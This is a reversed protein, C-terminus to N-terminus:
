GHDAQSVGASDFTAMQALTGCAADLLPFALAAGSGEGLRLGLDLLPELGLAALAVSHGPEASRHGAILYSRVAPALRAAVLAAAATIFGDVVVAVRGAAAALAVGVLGAIELGGVKALVDLPDSPDPRNVELARQVVARKHELQADDVGTGRGTVRTAPAGTLVAVICSSPTTNGIGMEGLAVADLGADREADLLRIGTEIARVAEDRTMAPGVALNRTGRAVKAAVYRVGPPLPGAPPEIDAAVGIDAVVIRAGAVVALANCAAGGRLFNLVMQPTVEAPYRSVGEATVGHDGALVVLAKRTLSPLPRGTIGALQVSLGELRGLSGAPKTLLAQRAEAAAMAASDLPQIAGITRELLGM